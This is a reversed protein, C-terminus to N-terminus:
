KMRLGGTALISTFFLEMLGEVIAARRLLMLEQLRTRNQRDTARRYLWYLRKRMHRGEIEVHRGM